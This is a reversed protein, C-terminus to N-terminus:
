LSHYLFSKSALHLLYLVLVLATAVHDSNYLWKFFKLLIMQKINYSGIWKHSLNDQICKRSQNLYSLIDNKDMTKFPKNDHFQSLWIMVKIKGEKTSPKINIETIEAMVSLEVEPGTPAETFIVPIPNSGLEVTTRVNLSVSIVVTM